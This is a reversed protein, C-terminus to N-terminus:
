YKYLDKKSLNRYVKGLVTPAAMVPIPLSSSDTCRDTTGTVTVNDEQQDRSTDLRRHDEKNSPSGKLNSGSTTDTTSGLPTLQQIEKVGTNLQIFQQTRIKTKDITIYYM